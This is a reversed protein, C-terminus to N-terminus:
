DGLEVNHCGLSAVPLPYFMFVPRANTATMTNANRRLVICGNSVNSRHYNM